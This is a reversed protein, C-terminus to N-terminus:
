TLQEKFPPVFWTNKLHHLLGLESKIKVAEKYRNKFDISNHMVYGSIHTNAWVLNAM